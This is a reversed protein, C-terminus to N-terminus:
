SGQFCRGCDERASTGLGPASSITGITPAVVAREHQIRCIVASEPIHVLVNWTIATEIEVSAQCRELERPAHLQSLLFAHGAGVSINDSAM